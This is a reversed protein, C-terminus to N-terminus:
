IGKRVVHFLPISSENAFKSCRIRKFPFLKLASKVRHVTGQSSSGKALFYPVTDDFAFVRKNRMLEAHKALSRFCTHAPLLLPLHTYHPYVFSARLERTVNFLAWSIIKLPCGLFSVRLKNLICFAFPFFSAYGTTAITRLKYLANTPFSVRRWGGGGRKFRSAM